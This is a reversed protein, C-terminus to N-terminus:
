ATQTSCSPMARFCYSRSSPPRSSEPCASSRAPAMPGTSPGEHRVILPPPHGANGLVLRTEGEVVDLRAAVASCFRSPEDESQLTEDALALVRPLSRQDLAATRLTHRMLSSVAAADVGKGSVDGITAVWGPGAEFLDYFDGARRPATM